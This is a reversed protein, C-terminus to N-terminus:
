RRPRPSRGLAQANAAVRRRAPAMAAEAVTAPDAGRLVAQGAAAWGDVAARQKEAVMAILTSAATAPELWLRAGRVSFVTATQWAFLWGDLMAEGMAAGNAPKGSM